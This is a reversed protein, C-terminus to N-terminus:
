VNDQVQKITENLKKLAEPDDLNEIRERLEEPSNRKLLNQIDDYLPNTLRAYREEDRYEEKLETIYDKVDDVYNKDVLFWYPAWFLNSSTTTVRAWKIGRDNLYEVIQSDMEQLDASDESMALINDDHAIAWDSDKTIILENHGNYGENKVWVVDLGDAEYESYTSIFGMGIDEDSYTVSLDPQNMDDQLTAEAEEKVQKIQEEAQDYNYVGELFKNKIILLQDQFEIEFDVENRSPLDDLNEIFDEIEFIDMNYDKNKKDISLLKDWNSKYGQISSARKKTVAKSRSKIVKPTKDISSLTKVKKPNVLAVRGSNYRRIHRTQISRSPSKIIAKTM